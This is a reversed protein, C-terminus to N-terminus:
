SKIRGEGERAACQDGLSDNAEFEASELDKRSPIEMLKKSKRMWEDLEVKALLWRYMSSIVHSPIQKRGESSLTGRM